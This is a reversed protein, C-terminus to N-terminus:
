EFSKAIKTCIDTYTLIYDVNKVNIFGNFLQMMDIKNKALNIMYLTCAKYVKITAYYSQTQGFTAKEEFICNKFFQHM